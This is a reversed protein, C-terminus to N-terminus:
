QDDAAIVALGCIAHLIQIKPALQIFLNSLRGRVFKGPAFKFARLAARLALAPHGDYDYGYSHILPSREWRHNETPSALDNTEDM